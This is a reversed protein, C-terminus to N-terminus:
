LAAQQAPTADPKAKNPDSSEDDDSGDGGGYGLVEVSIISAAPETTQASSNNAATQAASNNAAGASAAASAGSINPAAPAAAAPPAGSTSGSAAINSANLIKTAALSINGTSRIGADGADIVGSPADLDVNGPPIGAVSALVGIGGGTALGGLDTEVNGSTPDILVQTPPATQVTKSSAGAAISGLNSWILIDGGKLTFIRGTGLTVNQQTYIDIGGGGETIIGPPTLSEDTAQSTLTVGGAPAFLDINGGNVTVISRFWTTINGSGTKGFFTQIAQEGAAYSGYGPSATNNHNRGTDRLVIYFLQLELKAKEESSLQTSASAFSEVTITGSLPDGSYTLADSLESLYTAGEDGSLVTTTFNQLALGDSSSLGTPLKVGADVIIDAGPLNGLAPNRENGISAIGVGTGDSNNAGDGLNVNGGALVELTGPGSIQIDGSQLFTQYGAQGAAGFPDAAQAQQQLPSTPDWAIIDGGASVISVDHVTNNQLYLGIDTIDNGAFIDAQKASFLTLGSIDGSQAFIQLPQTDNAHLLTTDNLTGTVQLSGNVGAYSGTEEFLSAVSEAFNSKQANANSLKTRSTISPSITSRQSIPDSVGPIKDPDADSLNIQSSIWVNNGADALGNVSGGAVLSINGSTSPMTTINGQLTIDGSIATASLTPPAISLLTALGDVSTGDRDLAEINPEVTRLWPQSYAVNSDDFTFGKMWLELLPQAIATGSNVTEAYERLTIDGGLSEVNVADTAAYTSFYDKYWYSNNIGQPTLFPNAVPGLLINGNAQVDFSGVGLFLTTPLYSQSSDSSIRLSAPHNPDRTPNTIISGGAYLSGNGNEVYYVGANLNGGANVSLNGGGLEVGNAMNPAIATTSGAAHGPMRYNTPISANINNISGAANLSINGGGLAGFDDFFNSFDVWWSTSEVESVPFTTQLFTGASALAGRRYLWNSPLETVSDVLVNGSIDETLQNMSGQINIAINGGGFSYQPAYAPSQQADGLTTSYSTNQNLFSPQPVDFTGGLTAETPTVQVGATYISAFQNWFQLDGSAAISINGTGTRIVQYYDYGNGFIASATSATVGVTASVNEGGKFSEGLSVNAASGAKVASPNASTFDAGGTIQYSWSQFNAPLATNQSLLNATYTSNQFGDSLSANFTINGSARLTLFGPASNAGVRFQSLDWDDQSVGSSNLVQPLTIGGGAGTNIIEVGPALNLVKQNATTLNANLNALIATAAASNAGPTGYFTQIDSLIQNQLTSTITGASGSVQYLKYGEVEISSAGTIASDLTINQLATEPTRLHLVGGVDQISTAAATVGLDITSGSQLNLTANPNITGNIENGASLFISGGKGSADYTDAHVTLLSGSELIVSDSAQLTIAGGTGTGAANEGSANITGTVTISGADASVTYSHAQADAVIVNGTRIEINQSQTFGGTTLLNELTSLNGGNYSGLDAVFSGATGNPAAATITGNLAVTGNPTTVSLTGASGAVSPANLDLLSGSALTVNGSDSSLAISGGSTYKTVNFISKSTGAVTIESSITLDGTTSEISVSGSPLTIPAAVDVTGGKLTLSAGLGPTLASSGADAVSLIGATKITTASLSAGTVVPTTLTLNGGATLTGAVPTGSSTKTAVGEIGGTATADITKFGGISLAGSGIQLVSGAITLVGGSASPSGASPDTSASANDLLITAAEISDASNNDGLIEGAHLGLSALSASGLVGSGNFVIGAYSTLNLVKASNLGALVAGSLNLAGLDTTGDFNIAITGAKLNITRGHLEASPDISAGGSSDLTISAGSLNVGSGISIGAIPTSDSGSRTAGAQQDGSVRLLVGDGIVSLDQDPATANESAVVSAGQDLTVANNAALIIDNGSLSVGADLTVSSSTVSVPTLGNATTGRVGGILLSGFSWSSLQSAGLVLDGASGGTGNQTIEVALPTSIDISAGTGGAAGLGSVSGNLQMSTTAQFVLNGADAPSASSALSSFFSGANLIGYEVRAAIASPSLVQFLTTNRSATVSANLGNILTGSVIVSGDPQMLSGALDGSGTTASVLYAGPQTAYSAPLLTYTGAPLGGGGALSVQSGVGAGAGLSGDGYGTPAYAAQYGPIVAYYMPLETWNLSVSPTATTTQRAAWTNGKYTVLAGASYSGGAAWATATGLLNLTGVNGEIWQSATLNGGGQLDILSGSQTILHQASLNVSKGPIGTTTITSGSPDVWSQGDPSTGYPVSIPEGTQPNVGSVSTISDALLSLNQATSVASITAFSNGTGAGTIPDIPSSGSGLSGLNITGFPSVLVGGQTISSAYLSLTGGASLPLSHTGTKEVTISGAVGGSSEGAGTSSNHNYANMMFSVGTVPYIESANLVLRGAMDFTGDGRIVGGGGLTANLSAFGINELVLNGVNILEATVTLQGTGFSPLQYDPDTSTGFATTLATSGSALPAIFPTGLAVYDATLNVTSNASIVGKTAVMISEPAAISVPGNFIVNGGLTVNAFGGGEFSDVALHGGGEPIGGSAAVSQGLASVGSATFSKPISLGSQTIALNLDTPEPTTSTPLDYSRGSSISLSGGAAAVGGSQAVLTAESYLEQSGSLAISGGQSDIQYPTTLAGNISGGSMVIRAILSSSSMEGLQYPFLDYLGSAGSANLVAGKEALINGGVSISGGSLVTGFRQRMGLPDQIFFAEGATSLNASPALDVTLYAATPNANLPYTGAGSIAISGGPVTISGMVAVTQGKLTVSGTSATANVGSFKIQPDLTISAGKGLVVGGRILLSDSALATDSVGTATLTIASASRYPTSPTFPTLVPEGGAADLLYAAVEPHIVTGAAIEVGPTFDSSGAIPLGVGTLNFTGFGGQNFFSPDLNLVNAVTSNGGIQLAPVSLSLTGATGGSVGYAGAGTYGELTAGLNLSGGVIDALSVAGVGTAYSDLDRGTSISIAGATGYSESGSAPLFAGGSVNLLSGNHLNVHYGAIAISGANLAVPNLDRSRSKLTDNVLLGATSITAASGVSIIGTQEQKLESSPVSSASGDANLVTTMGGSSVGLVASVEGTSKNVMVDSVAQSPSNEDYLAVANVVSYPALDATLSIAGGPAVISGDITVNAAELTISGNVGANLMTNAPIFISGDHNLINLNGFGDASVLDPSLILSNQSSSGNVAFTITPASPSVTDLNGNVLSEGLIQLTLSSSAPLTSLSASERLQRPGTVTTGTLTGNLIQTPAQITISGGNAGSLYPAEYHKQNPDLISSFTKTVGWKADTETETGTDIGSYVKDPTAQSIDVFHGQYLLKTTSFNGGSYQTWGGSVNISSGAETTVSGGADLAVSGGQETLQGVTREILAVYGSVDGLPTGIWYYTEGDYTYTGTMRTDIMISQGRVDNNGQQLPSDALEAGRLQLTIFNQASETQIDTSGAVNIEAGSALSINGTNYIFKSAANHLQPWWTGAQITVGSTLISGAESLAGATVAAGPADIIAGSGLSVDSGLISVVSNLALSSGTVTTDSSWEPLISMVSGSGLTVVGTSNYLIPVGGQSAYLDNITTNYSADLDIRGNLSVSTSSDIVGLQNVTKGAITADGEPMSISGSNQAIGTVSSVTAVTPDSVEGISVDFGRLSPDSSPHPYLGVQLGAALITQGNPTSISGANYVNPGILAVLGGTHSANAPATISAGSEVVVNGIGGSPAAPPTFAATPGVKGAAIPLASFLFQYDPNNAIGQGAIGDLADGALNENIPLTSAVLAHTNVQAGHGFLIGNQNLIYVQGQATISGLIQTPNVSGMVKNFAIWKGVSSGGASQNFNLTTQPGVSFNNWYLYANQSKQTVTVTNGSQNLSSVGGWTVPVTPYKSNMAGTPNYADLWGPALGNKVGASSIMARARAQFNKMAAIATTTKQQVALAQAATLSASAGGANQLNAAGGAGGANGGGGSMAQRATMAFLSPSASFFLSVSLMASVIRVAPHFRVGHDKKELAADGVFRSLRSGSAVSPPPHFLRRM